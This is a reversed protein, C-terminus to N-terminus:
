VPDIMGHGDFVAYFARSQGSHNKIQAASLSINMDDIVVHRDEM